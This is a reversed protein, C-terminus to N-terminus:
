FNSLTKTVIILGRRPKSQFFYYFEFNIGRLPYVITSFNTVLMELGRLPNIFYNAKFIKLDIILSFRYNCNLESHCFIQLFFFLFWLFNWGLYFIKFFIVVISIRRM